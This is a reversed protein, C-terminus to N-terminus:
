SLDLETLTESVDEKERVAYMKLLNSVWISPYEDRRQFSESHISAATNGRDIAWAGMGKSPSSDLVM